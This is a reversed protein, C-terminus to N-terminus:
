VGTTSLVGFQQLTVLLAVIVIAIKMFMNIPAPVGAYDVLYIFAVAIALILLVTLLTMIM